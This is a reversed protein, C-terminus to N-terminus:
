RAPLVVQYDAVRLRSLTGAAAAITYGQGFHTNPPGLGLGGATGYLRGGARTATYPSPELGGGELCLTPQSPPPGAGFDTCTQYDLLSPSSLAFLTMTGAFLRNRSYHMHYGRAMTDQGRLTLTPTDVTLRALLPGTAHISSRGNPLGRLRLAASLRSGSSGLLVLRYTGASLYVAGSDQAGFVQARVPSPVPCPSRGCLGVDTAYTELYFDRAALRAGHDTRVILLGAVAGTEADIRVDRGANNLRV